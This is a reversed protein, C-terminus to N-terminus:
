NNPLGNWITRIDDSLTMPDFPKEIIGAAGLDNYEQKETARVRATMFLIPTTKYTPMKRIESFTKMGNMGPMMGDLLILQPNTRILGALAAPGDNYTSVNFKGVTTLALKILELLDPEDDICTIRELPLM